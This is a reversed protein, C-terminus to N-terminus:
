APAAISSEPTPQTERSNKPTLKFFLDPWTRPYGREAARQALARHLSDRERTLDTALTERQQWLQGRQVSTSEQRALATDATEVWSVLDARYMELTPETTTSLWGRVTDLQDGLPMRVQQSPPVPFYTTFRPSERDKSCSRLLDDAFALCTRDLRNNAVERQADAEVTAQQVSRESSIVGDLRPLWTNTNVVLDAADPDAKLAAQTYFIEDEIVDLTMNRTLKRPM